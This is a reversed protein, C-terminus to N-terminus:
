GIRKPTVLAHQLPGAGARQHEAQGRELRVGHNLPSVVDGGLVELAERGVDELVADLAGGADVVGRGHHAVTGLPGISRSALSLKFPHTTEAAGGPQGQDGREQRDSRQSVRLGLHVLEVRREESRHVPLLRRGVLKAGPAHRLPLPM